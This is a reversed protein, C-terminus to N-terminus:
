PASADAKQAAPFRKAFYTETYAMAHPLLRIENRASLVRLRKALRNYSYSLTRPYSGILTAAESGSMVRKLLAHKPKLNQEMRYGLIPPFASVADVVQVKSLGLDLLWRRVPQLNKKIGAGLTWTYTAVVKALQYKSLGTDLLWQVTTKVHLLKKKKKYQHM